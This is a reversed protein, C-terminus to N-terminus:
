GRRAQAYRQIEEGELIKAAEINKDYEDAIHKLANKMQQLQNRIMTLHLDLITTTEGGGVLCPGPLAKLLDSHKEIWRGQNFMAEIAVDIEKHADKIATILLNNREEYNM